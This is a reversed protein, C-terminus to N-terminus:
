ASTFKFSDLKIILGKKEIIGNTKCLHYKSCEDFINIEKGLINYPCEDIPCIFMEEMERAKGINYMECKEM